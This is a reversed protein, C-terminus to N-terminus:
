FRFNLTNDSPCRLKLFWPHMPRSSPMNQRRHIHLSNEIHFYGLVHAHWMHWCHYLFIQSKTPPRGPRWREQFCHIYLHISIFWFVEIAEWEMNQWQGFQCWASHGCSYSKQWCSQISSYGWHPGALASRRKATGTHMQMVFSTM